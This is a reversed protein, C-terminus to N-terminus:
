HRQASRIHLVEDSLGPEYTHRSTIDINLFEDSLKVPDYVVEVVGGQATLPGQELIFGPMSITYSGEVDTWGEPVRPYFPLAQLARGQRTEEFELDYIGFSPLGFDLGTSLNFGSKLPAALVSESYLSVFYDLIEEESQGVALRDRLIQRMQKALPAQSQDLTEGLCVPCLLQKDLAQARAEIQSWVVFFKSRGNEAGLVGGTPYPPEVQGASTLGDHLVQVAVTWVGPEDVPFADDPAAFYGIANAQGSMTRVAGSPSTVQVTVQSALPPGVQGAFVFQDGVELVAGPRVATPMIFLDIEEGKLTMIPGGSPGGAAGQFPPFVRSGVPDSRPVEVWLSAYIAVEGIGLDSRKFVAAGFQWKVNNPNDGQAGMGRQALYFEEFRWYTGGIADTTVTERVRVGPREVARYAYGWQDIAGPDFTAEIDSATSILMPVEGLTLREDISPGEMQSQWRREALLDAVEGVTDQISVRMQVSDDDTAWVIDGSHYLFNLHHPGAAVGIAQRIFWPLPEDTQGSDEGRRGHALLVPSQSAVGSGWRRTGM